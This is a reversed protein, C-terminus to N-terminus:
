EVPDITLQHAWYDGVAVTIRYLEGDHRVYEINQLPGPLSDWKGAPTSHSGNEVAWRVEARVSSPLADLRVVSENGVTSENARTTQIWYTAYLDGTGSSFSIEYYRDGRRLFQADSFPEADGTHFRGEVYSTNPVFSVTRNLAADVAAQRDATLNAYVLTNAPRAALPEEPTPPAETVNRATEVGEDDPGASAPDPPDTADDGSPTPTGASGGTGLCGGLLVLAVLAATAVTRTQM